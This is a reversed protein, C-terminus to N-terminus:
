SPGRARGAVAGAGAGGAPRKPDRQFNHVAASQIRRPVFSLSPSGDYIRYLVARMGYDM